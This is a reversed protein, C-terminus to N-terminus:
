KKVILTEIPDENPFLSGQLENAPSPIHRKSTKSLHHRHLHHIHSQVLACKAELDDFKQKLEDYAEQSVMNQM